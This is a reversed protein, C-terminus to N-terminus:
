NGAYSYTQFFLKIDSVSNIFAELGQDPDSLFTGGPIILMWDTNWVSRGILRSDQSAETETFAGSDHYARFSAFRRIEAFTGGLSDNQPIWAPDNLANAGIPFPVPLAQDVVRWERTAFDGSSPSRLVDMGAPVLYVRPTVSLGSGNYNAFWVGVSRVKTVFRSPDYASDGGGLPWGFFNLSFTVTTPFRIVLGPQAGSSEPAFPRCYRRFEPVDWLNAVLCKKLEARWVDDSADRLRFKERRLSFRGTETEPNNFGFQGKLVAFNQSMRALPDALGPTGAVPVGYIGGSGSMPLIQGLSRQRIIDTLFAQGARTDTGLLNVEYDYATAALFVYRAALDFSARYKQLADNRFIRFTMDQYRSQTTQAAVRKRYAVREEILREGKALAALYRNGAQVVAERQTYAELRLPAEERMDKLIARLSDYASATKEGKALDLEAQNGAIDKGYDLANQVGVAVDAAIGFANRTINGIAKMTMRLPSTVDFALGAVKPLGEVGAGITDDVINDIRNMAVQTEKAALIFAGISTMANFKTQVIAAAEAEKWYGVNYSQWQEEISQILKDYNQLAQKLRAEAQVLENLSMQLEGPARRQGWTAPPVFGYRAASFPYNVELIGTALVGTPVLNTPFEFGFDLYGQQLTSFYGTFNTNPPATDDSIEKTPIYMYHYLDPGDYGSPYTKGAGIDGAYPYGFIEILRNRYDREQDIVNQTFQEQSDQNRRLQETAKNVQNWVANANNLSKLAREHIQEYHTQGASVLSPDIDFPVVGKALGLPNLGADAQDLKGQIELYHAAIEHLERVTTRDIKQIGAHNTNPDTSPLITNGVVWDFYAGQGARCAWETVGWARDTDTDQYGQWQGAPDDVYHLRYTLDVIEAGTKAKAAATLAFKREDLFDVEVSVGAVNVLETRPVWTFYPHRLLTYHQKIATLYHGWADGHGQPYLIRADKEDLFGDRNQDGIDYVQQYAVEGEGLTFNWFLRNYVPRAAVGAARDDRGRLLVLEEELPSDLQNQFAFISSALSGYEVSDTGFGITPDQADAYAENGVLTYLDSLKTSALLLANNAPNFDVPPAGEISLGKARELVTQYAEIIGISNLYAPDPNFAIPGEYRPGAQVLMSSFTNAATAHFDTTRADFVNLGRIVRKVWGEALVARPASPTGSPDGVWGSWTSTDNLNVAYGRYRCIFANDSITILGSEGGEGITVYNVGAGSTPRINSYLIWGRMESPQDATPDTVVPLDTPDFDAGIPKYYWQFTLPGPDGGFDSSHRITLRQDFVNEGPLPKLDGRFPGDDIRIVYLNVPAGALAADNNEAVTVYRPPIGCPATSTVWTAGNLDGTYGAGDAANVADSGSGEDFRYYVALGTERGLLRKNMQGCIDAASRVSTWVRFEDLRGAFYNGSAFRGLEAVGTGVYDNTATRRAVEAGDRYMIQERRNHDFSCAWHHWNTDTYTATTTFVSGASTGLDFAFQGASRFGLRLQGFASPGGAQTFIYRDGTGTARKAWFEITFDTDGLNLGGQQASGGLSVYDNVGDFSLAFGPQPQAPPVGGLGATLAKPGAGFQEPVVQGDGNATLGIRLAQDPQGDQPDLDV